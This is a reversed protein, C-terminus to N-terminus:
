KPPAENATDLVIKWGDDERVVADSYHGSLRIPGKDGHWVGSWAGTYVIAKDNVVKVEVLKNPDAEWSKMLGGFWNEIAPRGVSTEGSLPLQVANDAFLSGWIAADKTEFAKAKVKEIGDVIQRGDQDTLHQAAAGGASFVGLASMIAILRMTMNEEM